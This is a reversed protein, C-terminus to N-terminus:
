ECTLGNLESRIDELEDATKLEPVDVALKDFRAKLGCKQSADAQASLCRGVLEQVGRLINAPFGNWDKWNELYRKTLATEPIAECHPMIEKAGEPHKAQETMYLSWAGICVCHRKGAREKSWAPQHTESSFDAPLSEICVEHIGGMQESCTGDDQWSGSADDGVRCEELPRGFVNRKISAHQCTQPAGASTVLAMLDDVPMDKEEFAFGNGAFKWESDAASSARFYVFSHHSSDRERCQLYKMLSSEPNAWTRSEFCLSLETFRGQAIGTCPCSLWGFLLVRTSDDGMFKELIGAESPFREECTQGTSTVAGLEDDFKGSQISTAAAFGQGIFKDKVFVYSHMIADGQKDDPYTCHLWDWVDSQGPSYALDGSFETLEYPVGKEDLADIAAQTCRMKPMAILLVGKNDLIATKLDGPPSGCERYRRQKYQLLAIGSDDSLPSCGFGFAADCSADAEAAHQIGEASLLKNYLVASALRLVLPSM